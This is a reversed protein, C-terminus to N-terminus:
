YRSSAANALDLPYFRQGDLVARVGLMLDKTANSKVVYGDCGALRAMRELGAYSHTTYVLIKAPIQLEKIQYAVSFGGGKPMTLDLVILDPRLEQTKQVAEVGDIAEGCIELDSEEALLARIGQRAVMHDDVILIRKPVGQQAQEPYATHSEQPAAETETENAPQETPELPVRATVRTGRPGHRIDLRGMLPELRGRMSQIGVGPTVKPGDKTSRFHRGEDEVVLQVDTSNLSLKLWAKKSGSHRFVNGLSEQAVRFLAIEHQTPLRRLEAPLSMRVDIGTRKIFGDVYWRLASGLGMEDLLPPHLLYSFTRIESEVKRMLNASDCLMKQADMGPQNLNAALNQLNMIAFALEQGASDHLERAMRRREEDQLQLLRASLSQRRAESARLAESTEMLETLENAVVGIISTAGARRPMPFFSVEITRSRATNKELVGITGEVTTTRAQELADAIAPWYAPSIFNKLNTGEQFDRGSFTRTAPQFLEAFKSNAYLVRGRSDLMAAGSLRLRDLMLEFLEASNEPQIRSYVHADTAASDPFTPRKKGSRRADRRDDLRQNGANGRNGSRAKV